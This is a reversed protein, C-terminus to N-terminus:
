YRDINTQGLQLFTETVNSGSIYRESGKGEVVIRVIVTVTKLLSPLVNGIGNVTVTGFYPLVLSRISAKFM